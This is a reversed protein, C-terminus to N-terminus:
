VNKLWDSTEQWLSPCVGANFFGSHGIKKINLEQPDSQKIIISSNQYIEM